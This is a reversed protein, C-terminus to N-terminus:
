HRYLPTNHSPDEPDAAVEYARSRQKWEQLPILRGPCEMILDFMAHAIHEPAEGEPLPGTPTFSGRMRVGPAVQRVVIYSEASVSPVEGPIAPRLRHSRLPHSRFWERDLTKALDAPTEVRGYGLNIVVIGRQNNVPRKVANKPKSQRVPFRRAKKRSM